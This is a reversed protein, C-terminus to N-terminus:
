RCLVRCGFAPLSVQGSVAEGTEMDQYSGEVLIECAAGQYNELFLFETEDAYRTHASTGEPLHSANRKIKKQDVLWRYFYDTFEGTDRCAIYYAVGKGYNNKCLAPMGKYYDSEYVALTEATSPHVVECYDKAEYRTGEPFVLANREGPYLTDTEEAWLGFVDKLGEGPFGGLWCLDNENVLGTMYGSCLTGGQRVYDSLKEITAASTMYLMPAAVLKYGSLDSDPLMIDVNIGQKWFARYVSLVTEFYRKDGRCFGQCQELAWNSEFDILLGVESPTGSGAVTSIKQLTKGLKAVEAFIRTHETGQHDIVAGHFKEASGRSKRWQFYQVSDSGHAVAQLSSLCHM